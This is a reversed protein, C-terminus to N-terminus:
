EEKGMGQMVDLHPEDYLAMHLSWSYLCRPDLPVCVPPM